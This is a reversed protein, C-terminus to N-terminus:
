RFSFTAARGKHAAGEAVPRAVGPLDPRAGGGGREADGPAGANVGASVEAPALSRAHGDLFAFNSKGGHRPLFSAPLGSNALAGTAYTASPPVSPDSSDLLGGAGGDGAPSRRLMAAFGGGRGPPTGAVEFITVSREPATAKTTKPMTVANANMAYSVFDGKVGKAEEPDGFAFESKVYPFLRSGWGVASGTAVPLGDDYDGMYILNGIALQKVNSLCTVKLAAHRGNPYVPTLLVALGAAVTLAALVPLIADTWRRNM